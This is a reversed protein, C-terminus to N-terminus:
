VIRKTPLTLHTYSVAVADLILRTTEGLELDSSYLLSQQQQEDLLSEPPALEFIDIGDLDWGHSAATDRLEAETESLTVYLTKEGAAAGALLFSLAATTKGTGPSGEFLFVRNRKLGSGLIDDLGAIGTSADDAFHAAATRTM